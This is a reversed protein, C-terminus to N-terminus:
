LNKSDFFIVIVSIDDFAGSNKEKWRDKALDQLENCAGESDYSSYYRNVIESIEDDSLYKWFSQTGIVIFKGKNLRVDSEGIEPGPIIGFDEAALNGICRSIDLERFENLFEEKEKINYLIKSIKHNINNNNNEENIVNKINNDNIIKNQEEEKMKKEKFVSIRYKESARSPYLEYSLRISGLMSYLMCKNRGTNACYVKNTNNHPYLVIICTAGSYNM